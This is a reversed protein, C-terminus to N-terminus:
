IPHMMLTVNLLLTTHSVCFVSGTMGAPKLRSDLNLFISEWDLQSFCNKKCKLNKIYKGSFDVNSVYKIAPTISVINFLNSKREAGPLSVKLKHAAGLNM